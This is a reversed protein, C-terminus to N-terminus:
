SIYKNKYFNRNIKGSQLYEINEGDFIIEKPISKLTDKTIIIKLDKMLEKDIKDSFIIIKIIIKTTDPLILVNDLELIDKIELELLIPNIFIGAM